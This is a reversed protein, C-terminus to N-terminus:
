IRFFFIEFELDDYYVDDNTTTELELERRHDAIQFVCRDTLLNLFVLYNCILQRVGYRTWDTSFM